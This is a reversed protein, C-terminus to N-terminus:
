GEPLAKPLKWAWWKDGGIDRTHENRRIILDDDELLRPVYHFGAPRPGWASVTVADPAYALVVNDAQIQRYWSLLKPKHTRAVEGLLVWSLHDHAREYGGSKLHERAVKEWPWYRQIYVTKPIPAEPDALWRGITARNVGKARALDAQSIEGARLAALEAATFRPEREIVATDRGQVFATEPYRLRLTGPDAFATRAAM